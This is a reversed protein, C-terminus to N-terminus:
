QLLKFIAHWAIRFICALPRFLAVSLKFFARSLDFFLFNKSSIKQSLLPFYFARELRVHIKQHINKWKRRFGACIWKNKLRKTLLTYAFITNSITLFVGKLFILQYIQLYSCIHHHGWSFPSCMSFCSLSRAWIMRGVSKVTNFFLLFIM